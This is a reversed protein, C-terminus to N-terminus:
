FGGSRFLPLKKKKELLDNTQLLRKGKLSKGRSIEPQSHKQTFREQWM